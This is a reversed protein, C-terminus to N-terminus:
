PHPSPSAAPQPFGYAGPPSYPPDGSPGRWPWPPPADLASVYHLVEDCYGQWEELTAVGLDEPGLPGLLVDGLQEWANQAGVWNENFANGLPSRPPLLDRTLCLTAASEGDATIVQWEPPRTIASSLSGSPVRDILTQSDSAASTLATICRSQAADFTSTNAIYLSVALGALASALTVLVGVATWRLTIRQTRPPDGAGGLDGDSREDASQDAEGV